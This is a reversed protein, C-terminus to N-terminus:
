RADADAARQDELAGSALQAEADGLRQDAALELAEVGCPRLRAFLDLVDLRPHAIRRTVLVGVQEVGLEQHQVVGHEDLPRRRDHALFPQIRLRRQLPRELLDRCEEVADLVGVQALSLAVDGVDDAPQAHVQPGRAIRCVQEM